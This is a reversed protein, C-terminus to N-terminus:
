CQMCLKPMPIKLLSFCVGVQLDDLAEPKLRLNRLVAKGSLLGVSINGTNIGAIYKGCVKELLTAAVSSTM